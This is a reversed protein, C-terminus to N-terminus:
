LGDMTPGFYMTVNSINNVMMRRHELILMNSNKCIGAGRVSDFLGNIIVSETRAKVWVLDPQM